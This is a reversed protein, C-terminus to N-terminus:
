AISRLREVIIAALEAPKTFQPWHGTPLDVYEVDRICTLEQVPAAGEQAWRRLLDSGFETCIMTVPVDYRAENFLRQPETTFCAPAPIANRRFADLLEPNMDTLDEDDMDSWAPLPIEGQTVTFGEVLPLGDPTPFGGVYFARAVQEPRADVVAHALGAGASHGVLAVRQSGFDDIVGTIFEVLRVLSIGSRDAAMSEMGPLTLAHTSYGASDLAAEVRTWSRDDLWLGPILIVDM